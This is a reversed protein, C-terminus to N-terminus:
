LKLELHIDEPELEFLLQNIESTLKSGIGIYFDVTNKTPTASIYLKAAGMEKAKNKILEVLKKGIGKKRYEKSIYLIDLKIQDKSKGILKNELAVMGVINCGHFAGYIIGKRDYLDYLRDIFEEIEQSHWGVVDCFEEKLKLEGEEVYYVEDITESRDIDRLKEIEQRTLIRFIM